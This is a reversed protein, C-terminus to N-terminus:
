IKSKYKATLLLCLSFDCLDKVGNLLRFRAENDGYGGQLARSNRQSM